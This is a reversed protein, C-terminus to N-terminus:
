HAKRKRTGRPSSCNESKMMVNADSRKLGLRLARTSCASSSRGVQKSVEQWYDFYVAGIGIGGSAVEIM